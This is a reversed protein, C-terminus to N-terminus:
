KLDLEYVDQKPGPPELTTYAVTVRYHGLVLDVGTKTPLKQLDPWAVYTGAPNLWEISYTGATRFKSGDERTVEVDDVDLRQWRVTTTKGPEVEFTAYTGNLWLFYGQKWAPKALVTYDLETASAGVNSAWTSPNLLYKERYTKGQTPYSALTEPSYSRSTAFWTESRAPPFARTPPQIHVTGRLDPPALDMSKVEGAALTVSDSWIPAAGFEEVSLAFTFQGPGVPVFRGPEAARQLVSGGVVWPTTVRLKAGFTVPFDLSGNVHLGAGVVVTDTKAVVSAQMSGLGEGTALAWGVTHLGAPLRTKAGYAVNKTDVGVHAPIPSLGLASGDAPEVILYGLNEQGIPFLTDEKGDGAPGDPSHDVPDPTNCASLILAIPLALASSSALIRRM